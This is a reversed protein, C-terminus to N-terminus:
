QTCISRCSPEFTRAKERPEVRQHPYWGANNVLTRSSLASVARSVPARLQSPPLCAQFLINVSRAALGGATLSTAAVYRRNSYFGEHIIRALCTCSLAVRAVNTVLGEGM